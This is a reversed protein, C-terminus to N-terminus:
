AFSVSHGWNVFSYGRIMGYLDFAMVFPLFNIAEFSVPVFLIGVKADPFQTCFVGFMAFLAGSAGGSRVFALHNSKKFLLTLHGALGTLVGTSLYFALTHRANGEFLQSRGASPLFNYTAWMNVLLHIPGDHVFTSTFMTFNFGMAPMHWLLRWFTPALFSSLHVAGNVAILGIAVKEVPYQQAWVGKALEIPGPPSKSFQRYHSQSTAPKLQSRAELFSMFLYIGASVGVAWLAPQLYRIQVIPLGQDDINDPKEVEDYIQRDITKKKDGPKDEVRRITRTDIDYIV